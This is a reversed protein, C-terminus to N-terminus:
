FFNNFGRHKSILCGSLEVVVGKNGFGAGRMLSVYIDGRTENISAFRESYEKQTLKGDSALLFHCASQNLFRHQRGFIKVEFINGAGSLPINDITTEPISCNRSDEWTLCSIRRFYHCLEHLLVYFIAAKNMEPYIEDFLKIYIRRNYSTFGDVQYWEFHQNEVLIIGKLANVLAYNFDDENLQCLDKMYETFISNNSLFEMFDNFYNDFNRIEAPTRRSWFSWFTIESSLTKLYKFDTFVLFASINFSKLENSAIIRKLINTLSELGSRMFNRIIKGLDVSSELGLLFKLILTALVEETVVSDELSRNWFRLSLPRLDPEVIGLIKKIKKAYIKELDSISTLPNLGMLPILIKNDILKAAELAPTDLNQLSSLSQIDSDAFM